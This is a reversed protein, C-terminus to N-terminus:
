NDIWTPKCQGATGKPAPCFWARWPKGSKGKGERFTKTGHPCGPAEMGPPATVSRPPRPTRAPETAPAGAEVASPHDVPQAGVGRGLNYQAKLAADFNGVIGALGSEEAAGIKDAVEAASSGKIAILPSDYGTHPKFSVVVDDRTVESM